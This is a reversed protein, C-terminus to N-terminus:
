STHEKTEEAAVIAMEQKQEALGKKFLAIGKGFGRGLEPLRKGGFMLFAIALIMIVEPTGLGFM